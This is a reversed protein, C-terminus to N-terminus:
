KISVYIEVIADNPNISREDYREFDAVYARELDNEEFFTWIEKWANPITEKINGAETTFVLYRSSPITKRKMYTPVFDYAHVEAGIFMTYEGNVDNEYNTYMGFVASNMQNPIYKLYEKEYFTQWLSPIIGHVSAEKQNNTVGSIGVIKKEDLTLIKTQLTIVGKRYTSCKLICILIYYM